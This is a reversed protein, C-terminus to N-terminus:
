DKAAANKRNKCYRYIGWGALLLILLYMLIVCVTSIADGKRVSDPDFLFTVHHSGSPVDLARLLYNVRYHNAPTGDISAKWGYPYYIESFVVTGPASTSIDYDLQKPSWATLTVTADPAIGPELSAIQGTFSRDVVATTALDITNLADCEARADDAVVLKEVFWAHGLAYPNQQIVPQGEEGVILYKANLMGIVPMHGKALHEDILDQYRRLKAAHYGGISKLYYSTRAENFTNTTLNMVRFDPDPDKLLTEEYPLIAFAAQTNKPTKFTNDNFYRRDVPWLDVLVLVCLAAIMWPAKLKKENFLFLVAFAAAIFAFSRWADGTLLAARDELLAQYVQAPLQASYMADYPGTFSFLTRGLLAFVLCLGATIGGAVMLQKRAKERSVTGDMLAKVALFGLLPMAIEAVILISSVARFKNYLPFYRFFFETLWMCNHGWALAISFLTSALLAWKYPGPVILCGLLFLFCVIAGVYVNGATFPQEGWYLPAYECFSRATSAPMGLKTISKWSHSDPGLPYSSAGGKFGPILLTFTEDLGYSWQTAYDLDLGKSVQTGPAEQVLDSHGGRMTERAYERNAFVNGAGTGLGIALSAAFILVALGLDKWRKERIHIWLEALFFLGIMMFLYYAMQPHISFGVATFLMVFIAGLGYQKRFILYFGAAVLSIYSIAITKGGHGAAIIVLFYSSLAIAIAGAISLWKDVKFSRMLVYFCVFYFILIWAPHGPGRQLFGKVPGLLKDSRYIGGGIQYNPMGSFMSSNWWTHDGTEQTYQVSEQVASRANVDDGSQLVKGSLVPKCYVFALIFFLLLAALSAGYQQFFAKM